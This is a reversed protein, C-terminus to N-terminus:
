RRGRPSGFAAAKIQLLRTRLWHLSAAHRRRNEDTERALELSQRLSALVASALTPDHGAFAIERVLQEQRKVRAEAEVTASTWDDMFEQGFGFETM